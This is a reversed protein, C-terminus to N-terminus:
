NNGNVTAFAIGMRREGGDGDQGRDATAMGQQARAANSRRTTRAEAGAALPARLM